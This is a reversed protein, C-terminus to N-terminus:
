TSRKADQANTVDDWSNDGQPPADSEQMNPKGDKDVPVGPMGTDAMETPPPTRPCKM